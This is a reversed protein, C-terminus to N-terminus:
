EAHSANSCFRSPIRTGAGRPADGLHERAAAIRTMDLSRAMTGAEHASWAGLVTEVESGFGEEVGAIV